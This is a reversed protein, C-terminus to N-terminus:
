SAVVSKTNSARILLHPLVLLETIIERVEDIRFGAAQITAETDRNVNCGGAVINQCPNWINQMLRRGPTKARVHEIMVLPAQDRAVRRIENLALLPDPITCFV